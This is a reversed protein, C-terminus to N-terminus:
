EEKDASQEAAAKKKRGRKKMVLILGILILLLVAAAAATIAIDMNSFLRIVMKQVEKTNEVHLDYRRDTDGNLVVYYDGEEINSIELASGTTSWSRLLTDRSDYLAVNVDSVHSQLLADVVGISVRLVWNTLNLECSAQGDILGDKSVHVEYVTTDPYYDGVTETQKVYYTTDKELEELHISGRSDTYCTEGGTGDKEASITFAAGEIARTEYLEDHLTLDLTTRESQFERIESQAGTRAELTVELSDKDVAAYYEPIEAQTLLYSGLYLEESQGYGVSDCEIETVAEGKRYRLSGDATVIDEAAKVEFTGGSITQGTDADVMQIRIINMSPYVPITVVYPDDWDYYEEIDFSQSTVPEYGEPANLGHFYYSGQHIKEPLYFVGDEDTEFDNYSIRDPYYTNLTLRAGDSQYLEFQIGAEKITQETDGDVLKVYVASKEGEEEFPEEGEDDGDGDGGGGGGGGGGAPTPTPTPTPTFTVTPTPSFDGDGADEEVEDGIWPDIMDEEPVHLLYLSLLLIILLLVLVLATLLDSQSQWFNIEEPNKKNRKKM